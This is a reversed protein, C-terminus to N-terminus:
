TRAEPRRYVARLVRTSVRAEILTSLDYPVTRGTDYALYIQRRIEKKVDAPTARTQPTDRTLMRRYNM